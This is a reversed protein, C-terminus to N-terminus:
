ERVKGGGDGGGGNDKSLDVLIQKDKTSIMGKLMTRLRSSESGRLQVSADEYLGICECYSKEVTSMDKGCVEKKISKCTEEDSSKV